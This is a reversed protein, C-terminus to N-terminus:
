NDHSYFTPVDKAPYGNWNETFIIKIYITCKNFSQGVNFPKLTARVKFTKMDVKNINNLIPSEFYTIYLPELPTVNM